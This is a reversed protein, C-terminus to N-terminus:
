RGRYKAVLASLKERVPKPSYLVMIVTAVCMFLADIWWQRSYVFVFQGAIVVALVLVSTMSVNVKFYRQSTETWRYAILVIYSLLSAVITGTIGYIPILTINLAINIITAVLVSWFIRLTERSCQYGLEFYSSIAYLTSVCGLSYIYISNSQYNAGVLWGYNWKVFFSYIILLLGLASVYSNFILSFFKNKDASQYQLLATEQWTQYFIISLSYIVGSFKSVVGFTGTAELGCYYKIFFRNSSSIIWWGMATPLLPLSYFLIRKGLRWDIKRWNLRSIVFRTRVEILIMAAWRGFINSLIIGNVRMDLLAVFLVSFVGIAFTGLLGNAVFLKNNGLGRVSQAYVEYIAMTVLLSTTQWLYAIDSVSFVCLSIILVISLNIGLQRYVYNLVNERTKESSEGLLFRFVGDRLQTSAAPTAIMCFTLCLEWYGYEAPDKVFYTYLPVLLFTILKVGLIGISYVGFDKLFKGGRSQHTTSEINEIDNTVIDLKYKRKPIDKKLVM